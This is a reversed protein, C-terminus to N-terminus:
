ALSGAAVSAALGPFLAGQIERAAAREPDVTKPYPRSPLTVPAPSRDRRTEGVLFLYRHNGPHRVKRAGAANLAEALWAAPNQGAALPRAGFAILRAEAYEHGPEQKRIKQRARDNLVTGDPLLALTRPTARGTYTANTAQYITGVHGPM